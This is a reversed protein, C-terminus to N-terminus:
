YLFDWSASCNRGCLGGCTYARMIARVFRYITHFISLTLRNTLCCFTAHGLLVEVVIGSLTRRRLAARIAKTVKVRRAVTLKTKHKVCDLRCGLTTFESLGSETEHMSLGKSNFHEVVNELRGRLETESLCILGLNDVYVWHSIATPRSPSIVLPGTGDNFLSSDSM